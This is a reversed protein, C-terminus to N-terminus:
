AAGTRPSAADALAQWEAARQAAVTAVLPACHGPLAATIRRWEHPSLETVLMARLLRRGPESGKLSPDKALKRVATAVPNPWEAPHERGPPAAPRRSPEGAPPVAARAAGTATHRGGPVPDEGRRLRDRVDRVTATSLGTAHALQRLSVTPDTAILGAAHLRGDVSSLPRATGDRGIRTHSQPIEASASTRLKGVTKGSLGTREAIARDSWHPHSRLIREAAARREARSLPLGHRVNLQVSLVYADAESGDFFRVAITHHGRLRTAHLRHMGDIVRMTPRHVVIAEFERGSGALARVHGEDCAGGRPSDSPELRDIPVSEVSQSGPRVAGDPSGITTM